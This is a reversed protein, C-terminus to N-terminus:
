SLSPMNAVKYPSIPGLTGQVITVAYKTQHDSCVIYIYEKICHM